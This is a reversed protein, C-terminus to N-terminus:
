FPLPRISIRELGNSSRIQQQEQQQQQEDIKQQRHLIEDMFEVPDKPLGPNGTAYPNQVETRPAETPDDPQLDPEDQEVAANANRHNASALSGAPTRASLVIELLPAADLGGVILVNYGSGDLLKFIVESAPGPGYSGFVLQDKSLGELKAGTRAAVQRLIQNLSSNSTRNETGACGLEGKSPFCPQISCTRALCDTARRDACSRQNEAALAPVVSLMLVSM